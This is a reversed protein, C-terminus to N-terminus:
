YIGGINKNEFVNDIVEAYKSVWSMGLNMAKNDRTGQFKGLQINYEITAIQKDNKSCDLDKYYYKVIDGEYIEKGNKDKSGTFCRLPYKDCNQYFKNPYNETPYWFITHGDGDFQIQRVECLKKGNWGQYKIERNNM